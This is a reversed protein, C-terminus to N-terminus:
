SFAASLPCSCHGKPSPYLRAMTFKFAPLFPFLRVREGGEVWDGAPAGNGLGLRFGPANSIHDMCTLDGSQSRPVFTPHPHPVSSVRPMDWMYSHTRQNALPSSASFLHDM